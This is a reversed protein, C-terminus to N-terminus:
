YAAERVFFLYIFLNFFLGTLPINERRTSRHIAITNMAPSICQKLELLYNSCLLHALFRGFIINFNAFIRTCYYYKVWRSNKMGLQYLM